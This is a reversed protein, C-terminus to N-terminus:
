SVTVEVITTKGSVRTKGVTLKRGKDLLVETEDRFVLGRLGASTKIEMRVNGFRETAKTTGATSLYGNDVFSSGKPMALLQKAFDGNVARHLITGEALVISKDKFAGEVTASVEKLRPNLKKGDRLGSNLEFSQSTGFYGKLPLSGVYDEQWDAVGQAAYASDLAANFDKPNKSTM